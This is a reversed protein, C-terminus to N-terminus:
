PPLRAKIREYDEMTRNFREEGMVEFVLSVALNQSPGLFTSKGLTAQTGVALQLSKYRRFVPRARRNAPSM